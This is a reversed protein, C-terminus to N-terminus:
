PPLGEIKRLKLWWPKLEEALLAAVYQWGPEPDAKNGRLFHSKMM